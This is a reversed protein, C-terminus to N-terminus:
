IRIVEFMKEEFDTNKAESDNTNKNKKYECEAAGIRANKRKVKLTITDNSTYSILM